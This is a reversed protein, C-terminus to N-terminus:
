DMPPENCWQTTRLAWLSFASRDEADTAARKGARAADCLEAPSGENMMLRQYRQQAEELPTPPSCAAVVATLTLKMLRGTM